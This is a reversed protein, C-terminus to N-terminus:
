QAPMNRTALNLVEGARALADDAKEQSYLQAPVKDEGPWKDPYRTALYYKELPDVLANLQSKVDKDVQLFPIRGKLDHWRLGGVRNDKAALALLLARLSKEAVQQSLFCVMNYYDTNGQAHLFCAVEHDKEAQKIYRWGEKKETLKRM